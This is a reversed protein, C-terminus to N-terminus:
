TREDTQKPRMEMLWVNIGGHNFAIVKRGKMGMHGTWRPNASVLFNHWLGARERWVSGLRAYLNRPDAGGKIREGYPPNTVMWGPLEPLILDSISRRTWHILDAVGAREANARSMEIAGADRDSGAIFPTVEAHIAREAATKVSQWIGSEFSPWQEFAFSRHLGPAIGSALLAAEIPIVGSGCFPDVLPSQRDWGSALLLAAALNERLPAKGVALRYGRRHLHEGSSDISITCFNRVVRVVILQASADEEDAAERLHVPGGPAHAIANIIREAIGKKHYLRSAAASVRCQVPQGPRLFESWPLRAAKKELESFAAANFGGIRLLVRSATRLHLNLRYLEEAGGSCALLGNEKRTVAIGLDRMETTTIEELGPPCVVAIENTPAPQPTPKM